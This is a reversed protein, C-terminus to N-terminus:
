TYSCHVKYHQLMNDKRSFRKNCDRNLCKFPRLRTHVIYHRKIRSVTPLEMTCGEYPCIYMKIGNRAKYAFMSTEFDAFCEIKDDTSGLTETSAHKYEKEEFVPKQMHEAINIEGLVERKRRRIEMKKENLGKSIEMYQSIREGIINQMEIEAQIILYQLSILNEDAEASDNRNYTSENSYQKTATSGKTTTDTSSANCFSYKQLSAVSSHKIAKCHLM